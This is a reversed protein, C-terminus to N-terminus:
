PVIAVVTWDSGIPVLVVGLAAPGDVRVVRAAAAAEPGFATLVPRAELDDLPAPEGLEAPAAADCLQDALSPSGVLGPRENAPTDCDQRAEVWAQAAPAVGDDSPYRPEVVSSELGIGWSGDSHALVDWRVLASTPTLGIVQDLGPEFTVEATVMAQEESLSTIEGLEYDVIPPLQDAHSAVWLAPSGFTARDPASLYGFSTEFDQAIEADLFGVVASEGDPAGAGDPVPLDDPLLDDPSNVVDPATRATAASPAAPDDDSGFLQAGAFAAGLGLVLGGLM